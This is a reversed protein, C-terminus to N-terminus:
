GTKWLWMLASCFDFLINKENDVAELVYDKIINGCNLLLQM